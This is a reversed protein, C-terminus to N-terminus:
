GYPRRLGNLVNGVHSKSCEMKHAIQGLSLGQGRLQFILEIDRSTLKARHHDQGARRM